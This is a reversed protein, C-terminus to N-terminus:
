RSAPSFFVRGPDRTGSVPQRGAFGSGAPPTSTDESYSPSGTGDLPPLGSRRYVTGSTRMDCCNWGSEFALGKPPLLWVALYLPLVLPTWVLLDSEDVRRGPLGHAVVSM